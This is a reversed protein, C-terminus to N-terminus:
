RGVKSLLAERVRPSVFKSVDGGLTAIEKVLKSAIAQHRPDRRILWETLDRYFEALDPATPDFGAKIRLPKGRALKRRLEAEILLESAGRRYEALQAEIDQTSREDM